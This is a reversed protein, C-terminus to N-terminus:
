REAGRSFDEQWAQWRDFLGWAEHHLKADIQMTIRSLGVTKRKPVDLMFYCWDIFRQRCEGDGIFQAVSCTDPAM